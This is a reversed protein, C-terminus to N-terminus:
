KVVMLKGTKRNKGSVIEWIYVGSAVIQGASNRVDWKKTNVDQPGVDLTRVLDGAITFIRIKGYAPLDTFTILRTWDGYRDSNGSNPSFPVPYARVLSVDTDPVGMLAYSSFHEVNFYVEKATEDINAGTRRVWLGNTEDLRWVALDRVRVSPFSGDVIGDGDEDAYPFSIVCPLSPQVDRSGADFASANLIRLASAFVGPMSSLKGNAAAVAPSNQATSVILGFDSSYAGPPIEVKTKLDSLALAVNKELHDMKVTFYYTNDQSLPIGNIDVVVSSYRVAYVSGKNWGAASNLAVATDNPVLAVSIARTSNVPAGLHDRVEVVELGPAVAESSVENSFSFKVPDGAEAGLLAGESVVPSVAGSVQAFAVNLSLNKSPIQSLYGSLMSSSSTEMKYLSASPEGVTYSTQYAGTSSEILCSAGGVQRINEWQARAPRVMLVLLAALLVISQIKKTEGRNIHTM